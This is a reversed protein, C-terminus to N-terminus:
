PDWLVPIHSLTHAATAMIVSACKPLAHDWVNEFEEGLPM